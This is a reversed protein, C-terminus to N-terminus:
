FLEMELTLKKILFDLNQKYINEFRDTSSRAIPIIQDTLHDLIYDNQSPDLSLSEDRIVM